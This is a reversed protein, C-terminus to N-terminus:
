VRERFSARGIETLDYCARRLLERKPAPPNPALGKAKLRALVFADIPNSSGPAPDSNKPPIPRKVPQFAWHARDKASIRYERNADSQAPLRNTASILFVSLWGIRMFRRAAMIM